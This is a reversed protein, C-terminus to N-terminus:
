RFAAAKETAQKRFDTLAKDVTEIWASETAIQRSDEIHVTIATPSPTGAVDLDTSINAALTIAWFGPTFWAWFQKVHVDIVVAPSGGDEADRVQYGAQQLAVKLNERVVGEVTQGNQLLVDGLAMGFGGRKRAIARAKTDASAKNAGEFGLSPISPDSPSQEFVREDRVSRIVAVGKSAAAAAPAAAPATLQVESRSTACGALVACAVAAALSCASKWYNM